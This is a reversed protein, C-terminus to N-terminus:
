QLYGGAAMLEMATPLPMDTLQGKYFTLQQGNESYPFTFAPIVSVPNKNPTAYNPSTASLTSGGQLTFTVRLAYHGWKTADALPVLIGEPVAFNPSTVALTSGGQPVIGIVISYEAQPATNLFPVSLTGAGSTINSQDVITAWDGTGAALAAAVATAIQTLSHGSVTTYTIEPAAADIVGNIALQLNIVDGTASAGSFTIGATGSVIGSQTLISAWPGTGAAIAAAVGASIQALTHGSLTTYTLQAAGAVVVNDNLLDIMVVDGTASAGKFLIKSTALTPVIATGEGANSTTFAPVGPVVFSM